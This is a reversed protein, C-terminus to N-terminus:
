SLYYQYPLEQLPILIQIKSRGPRKLNPSSVAMSEKTFDILDGPYKMGESQLQVRANHPMAIQSSGEFFATVQAVTLVIIM